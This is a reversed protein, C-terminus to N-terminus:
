NKDMSFFNVGGGIKKVTLISTISGFVCFYLQLVFYGLSWSTTVSFFYNEATSSKQCGGRSFFEVTLFATFQGLYLKDTYFSRFRLRYALHVRFNM